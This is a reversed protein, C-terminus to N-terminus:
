FFYQKGIRPNVYEDYSQKKQYSSGNKKKRRGPLKTIRVLGNETHHCLLDGRQFFIGDEAPFRM